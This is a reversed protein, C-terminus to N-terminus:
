WADSKDSLAVAIFRSAFRYKTGRVHVLIQEDRLLELLAGLGRIGPAALGSEIAASLLDSKEVERGSDDRCLALLRDLFVSFREPRLYVCETLRTAARTAVRERHREESTPVTPMNVSSLLISQAAELHTVAREAIPTSEHEFLM